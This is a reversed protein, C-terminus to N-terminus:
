RTGMEFRLIHDGHLAEHTVYRGDVPQSDLTVSIPIPHSRPDPEAEIRLDGSERHLVVLPYRPAGVIYQDSGAVPYLGAAAFLLWGSMTGGDDNGPIGGADVGYLEDVVWGVWRATAARDGWAAFLWPAVIDPENGHWYYWRAGLIPEEAASLEFFDGLRTRAAGEGGLVEALGAPDHPVLWLYQWANGEVFMSDNTTEGPWQAWSGDANKGRFFGTDPDFLARWSEAHAELQEADQARGLQRAWRALASDAIAYEQTKSVSGSQLDAPVYGYTLYEEVAGRGGVPGPSRGFAAVRAVDYAAAEDFVVGKQASEAVVIEGPSGIMCHADGHALSWQPIAGGETGMRVLSAVFRENVPHEMLLLWPHLTRYTDWLSFDSYQPESGRAITGDVAVYRGDQDSILTPMLLAHYLATAILTSEREDDGYQHVELSSLAEAWTEEADTRLAEFDFDPVEAALNQAAGSPDVFSMGVRLEVTATGDPFRLWAGIETGSATTEGEHLGADDWVGVATPSVSTAAEIFADFGGFRSSLDGDDHVMAELDGSSEDLSVSAASIQGSLTHDLDLLLVPEVGAPYSIRFMSARLATTIEVEIDGELRVRYYGPSAEEDAHDFRAAYGPENRRGLDMGDVPMFAFTGYDPVGTGHMRTLSFGAIFDDDYHYGACHSFEPAGTSNRSDPGPHIMGFPLGPGPYASGVGFGIGGTGIMPDAAAMLDMPVLPGAEDIEGEPHSFCATSLAALAALASLRPSSGVRLPKTM